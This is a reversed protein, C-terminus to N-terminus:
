QKEEDEEEPVQFWFLQPTQASPHYSFLFSHPRYSPTTEKMPTQPVKGEAEVEAM